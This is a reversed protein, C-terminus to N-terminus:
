WTTACPFAPMYIPGPMSYNRRARRLVELYRPRSEGASEGDMANGLSM